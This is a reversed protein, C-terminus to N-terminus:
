PRNLRDRVWDWLAADGYAPDWANHGVGPLETYRVERGLGRLAEVMLRSETVPISRDDSGHFVWIPVQPMARAAAEYPNEVGVALPLQRVSSTPSPQVIGGCIPVLAAFRGPHTAALHWTGYGGLSLGTLLVRQPDGSFEQITRDLAAIAADASDGIWRDNAPAQPLVVIVDEFWRPNWRIATGLGVATQRWGDDGREGAGHLFLVVPWERSRDFRPPVWVVYPYRTAGVEISRALFGHEVGRAADGPAATRCAGFAVLALALLLATRIM